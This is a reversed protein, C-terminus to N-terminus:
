CDQGDGPEEMEEDVYDAFGGTHYTIDPGFLRKYRVEEDTPRRADPPKSDVVVIQPPPTRYLAKQLLYKIHFDADPLSYGIFVVQEADRLAREAQKWIMGLQAPDYSKLYTPTILLPELLAHGPEVCQATRSFTQDAIDTRYPTHIYVVGCTPCVAWNLSGHIKFLKVANPKVFDFRSEDEPLNPPPYYLRYAIGYDLNFGFRMKLANDAIIDYNFSIVTPHPGLKDVFQNTVHIGLKRYADALVSYILFVLNRRLDKLRDVAYKESLSEGRELAVDVASLVEELTPLISQDPDGYHFFEQVFEQVSELRPDGMGKEFALRLFDGGLVRRNDQAAAASAGAGLVYVTEM